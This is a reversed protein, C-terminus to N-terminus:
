GASEELRYGRGRVTVLEATSGSLKRRLYGAYVEVVNESGEFNEDWVGRLIEDKSVAVDRRRMLFELFGFERPTLPM